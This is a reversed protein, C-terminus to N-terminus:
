DEVRHTFEYVRLPAGRTDRHQHGSRKLLGHEILVAIRRSVTGMCSASLGYYEPDATPITFTRCDYHQRYLDILFGKEAWNLQRYGSSDFVAGPIQVVEMEQRAPQQGQRKLMVGSM